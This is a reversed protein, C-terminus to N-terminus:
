HLITKESEAGACAQVEKWMCKFPVVRLAAACAAADELEQVFRRTQAGWGAILDLLGASSVQGHWACSGAM